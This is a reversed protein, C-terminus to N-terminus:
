FQPVRKWMRKSSRVKRIELVVNYLIVRKLLKFKLINYNRTKTTKFDYKYSPSVLKDKAVKFELNFLTYTHIYETQWGIKYLHFAM